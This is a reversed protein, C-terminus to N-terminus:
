IQMERYSPYVTFHLEGHAPKVWPKKTLASFGKKEPVKRVTFAGFMNIPIKEDCNESLTETVVNVLSDLVAEVNKQTVGSDKSIKRIVDIKVM